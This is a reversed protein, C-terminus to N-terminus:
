PLLASRTQALIDRHFDRIQGLSPTVIFHASTVPADAPRPTSNAFINASCPVETTTTGRDGSVDAGIGGGILGPVRGVQVDLEELLRM